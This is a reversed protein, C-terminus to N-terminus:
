TPPNTAEFRMDSGTTGFSVAVRDCVAATAPRAHCPVGRREADGQFSMEFRAVFNLIRHAGAVVDSTAAGNKDGDLQHPM